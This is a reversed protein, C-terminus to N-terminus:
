YIIFVIIGSIGFRLVKKNTFFEFEKGNEEAKKREKTVIKTLIYIYLSILGFWLFLYFNSTELEM